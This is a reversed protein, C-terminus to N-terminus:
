RPVYDAFGVPHKPDAAQVKDGDKVLAEADPTPNPNMEWRQQIRKHFLWQKRQPDYRFTIFDTWHQGCSVGNQVTFYRGKAAFPDEDPDFPDCQGGQDRKLIVHDNRAALRYHGDAQQVFILLPRAPAPDRQAEGRQQLAVLYDARGDGDLDAQLQTLPQYGAPLQHLVDAPLAAAHALHSALLLSAALGFRYPLPM